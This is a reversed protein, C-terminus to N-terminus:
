GSSAQRLQSSSHHGRPAAAWGLLSPGTSIASTYEGGRTVSIDISAMLISQVISVPDTQNFPYANSKGRMLAHMVKDLSEEPAQDTEDFTVEYSMRPVANHMNTMANAFTVVSKLSTLMKNKELLSIGVGQENYNYSIYTMLQEPIFLVQTNEKKLHRALM